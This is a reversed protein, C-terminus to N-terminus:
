AVHRWIVGRKVQSILGKTVGYEKAIDGQCRTDVRILPIDAATLKAMPSREGFAHRRKAVKDAMNIRLTGLFLHTPEVCAPVDCKHCVYGGSPIPGNFRKWQLVHAYLNRKGVRLQGYGFTHIM